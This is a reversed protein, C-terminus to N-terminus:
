VSSLTSHTRAESSCWELRLVSSRGWRRVQGAAVGGGFLTLTRGIVFVFSLLLFYDAILLPARSARSSFSAVPNRSSSVKVECSAARSGRYPNFLPVRSEKLTVFQKEYFDYHSKSFYDCQLCPERGLEVGGVVDTDVPWRRLELDFWIIM